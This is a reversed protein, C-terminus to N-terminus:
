RDLVEATAPDFRTAKAVAADRRDQRSRWATRKAAGAAARAASAGTLGLAAAAADLDLHHSRVYGDGFPVALQLDVFQRLYGRVTKVNRGTHAALHAATVEEHPTLVSLLHWGNHQLGGATFLDHAPDVPTTPGSLKQGGLQSGLPGAVGTLPPPLIRWRTRNQQDGKEHEKVAGAAELRKLSRNVTSLWQGIADAMETRSLAPTLTAQPATLGAQVFALYLALDTAGPRGPWPQSLAELRWGALLEAAAHPDPRAPRTAATTQAKVWTQRLYDLGKAPGLQLYKSAGANAPNDYAAQLQEFTWGTQVASLAIGMDAGHRTSYGAAEAGHRLAKAPKAGLATTPASTPQPPRVVHLGTRQAPIHPAPPVTRRVARLAGEPTEPSVLSVPLGEAHPALPLRMPQGRRLSLNLGEKALDALRKHDAANEILCWLHRHGPRGSATIVPVYGAAALEDKLVDFRRVQQPKEPEDFDVALVDPAPIAMPTFGTAAREIAEKLDLRLNGGQAAPLPQRDPGLIM